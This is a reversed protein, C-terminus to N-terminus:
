TRNSNVRGVFGCMCVYMHVDMSEDYKEYPLINQTKHKITHPSSVSREERMEILAAAKNYDEQSITNAMTNMPYGASGAAPQIVRRLSDLIDRSSEDFSFEYM